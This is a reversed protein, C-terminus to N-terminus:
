RMRAPVFRSTDGDDGHKDKYDDILMWVIKRLAIPLVLITTIIVLARMGKTGLQEEATIFLNKTRTISNRTRTRPKFVMALILHGAFFGTVIWAAVWYYFTM